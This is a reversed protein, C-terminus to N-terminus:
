HLFRPSMVWLFTTHLRSLLTGGARERQQCKPCSGYIKKLPSFDTWWYSRRKLRLKAEQLWESCTQEANWMVTRVSQNNWPTNSDWRSNEGRASLQMWVKSTQTKSEGEKRGWNDDAGETVWILHLSNSTWQKSPEWSFRGWSPRKLVYMSDQRQKELGALELANRSLPIRFAGIRGWCYWSSLHYLDM